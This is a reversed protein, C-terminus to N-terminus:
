FSTSFFSTTHKEHYLTKIDPAIIQEAQYIGFLMGFM